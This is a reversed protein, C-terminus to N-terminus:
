VRGWALVLTSTDEIPVFLALWFILYILLAPCPSLFPLFILHLCSYVWYVFQIIPSGKCVNCTVMCKAKLKKTALVFMSVFTLKIIKMADMQILQVPQWPSACSKKSHRPSTFHGTYSPTFSLKRVRTTILIGYLEKLDKLMHYKNLWFIKRSLGKLTMRKAQCHYIEGLRGSHCCEKEARGEGRFSGIWGYEFIESSDPM